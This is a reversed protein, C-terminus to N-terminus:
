EVQISQAVLKGETEAAEATVKVGPKVDALTIDKGGKTLKTSDNVVLVVESGASDKIVVKGSDVSVVAGSLTKQSLSDPQHAAIATQGLSTLFIVLSFAFLRKMMNM